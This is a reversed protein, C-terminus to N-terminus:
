QQPGKSATGPVFVEATNLSSGDTGGDGGVILVRGDPLAVGSTYSRAATMSPAPSLKGTKPDVIAATGLPIWDTGNILTGGAVLFQGNALPALVNYARADTLVDTITSQGTAPDYIEVEKRAGVINGTPDTLTGGVVLVRGDPLLSATLDGRAIALNGGAAFKGTNPDYIEVSRLAENHPDYGGLLAVRGDPLSVAAHWYRGTLLSATPQFMGTAPNFLEASATLGHVNIVDYGGAVLVQGDPLLTTTQAARPEKMDGVATFARTAPDYL